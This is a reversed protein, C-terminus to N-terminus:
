SDELFIRVYAKYAKYWSQKDFFGEEEFSVLTKSDLYNESGERIILRQDEPFIGYAGFIKKGHKDIDEELNLLNSADLFLEGQLIIPKAVLYEFFFQGERDLATYLRHSHYLERQTGIAYLAWDWASSFSEPGVETVRIYPIM